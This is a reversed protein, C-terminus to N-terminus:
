VGALALNQKHKVVVGWLNAFRVLRGQYGREPPTEPPVQACAVM